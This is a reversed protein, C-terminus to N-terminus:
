ENSSESEFMQYVTLADAEWMNENMDSWFYDSEGDFDPECLILPQDYYDESDPKTMQSVM